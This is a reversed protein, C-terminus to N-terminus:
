ILLAYRKIFAHQVSELFAMGKHPHSKISEPNKYFLEVIYEDSNAMYSPFSLSDIDDLPEFKCKFVLM